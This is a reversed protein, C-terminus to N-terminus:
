GAKKQDSAICVSPKLLFPAPHCSVSSLYNSLTEDRQFLLLKPTLNKKWHMHMDGYILSCLTLLSCLKHKFPEFCLLTNLNAISPIQPRSHNPCIWIGRHQTSSSASVHLQNNPFLTPSQCPSANGFAM